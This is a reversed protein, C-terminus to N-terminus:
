EKGTLHQAIAEAMTTSPLNAANQPPRVSKVVSTAPTLTCQATATKPRAPTHDSSSRMRAALNAAGFAAPADPKESTCQQESM